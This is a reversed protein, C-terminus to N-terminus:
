IRLLGRQIALQELQRAIGWIRKRNKMSLSFGCERVYAMWPAKHEIDDEEIGVKCWEAIWRDVEERGFRNDDFRIPGAPLLWPMDAKIYRYIVPDLHPQIRGRLTKSVSLLPSIERPTLYGCIELLLDAPLAELSSPAKTDEPINVRFTGLRGTEAAEQIPFRYLNSNCYSYMKGVLVPFNHESIQDSLSGCRAKVM